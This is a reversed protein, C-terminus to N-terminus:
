SSSGSSSSSCRPVDEPAGPQEQGVATAGAHGSTIRPPRKPKTPRRSSGPLANFGGPLGTSPDFGGSGGGGVQSMMQLRQM